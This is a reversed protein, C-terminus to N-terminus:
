VRGSKSGGMRKRGQRAVAPSIEGGGPERSEAGKESSGPPSYFFKPPPPPLHHTSRLRYRRDVGRATRVALPRFPVHRRIEWQAPRARMVYTYPHPHPRPRPRAPPQGLWSRIKRPPSAGPRFRRRERRTEDRSRDTPRDTRGARHRNGRSNHDRTCPYTHPQNQTSGISRIPNCPPYISAPYDDPIRTYQQPQPPQSM